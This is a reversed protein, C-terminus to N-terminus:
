LFLEYMHSNNKDPNRYCFINKSWLLIDNKELICCIEFIIISYHIFNTISVLFTDWTAPVSKM